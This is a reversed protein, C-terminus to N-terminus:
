QQPATPTPAPTISGTPMEAPAPQYPTRDFEPLAELQEKSADTLLWRDGNAEMWSLKPFDIAVNKEAIGLFGGVGIVISKVQGKADIVVDNVDGINQAKDGTGTYVSEGLFNSALYADAQVPRPPEAPQTITLPDSPAPAPQEQAYAAAAVLTALATTVLLKRIM